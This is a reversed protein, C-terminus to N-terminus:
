VRWAGTELEITQIETLRLGKGLSHPCRKLSVRADVLDGNTMQKRLLGVVYRM